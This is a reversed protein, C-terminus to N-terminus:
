EYNNFVQFCFNIKLLHFSLCATTCKSLLINSLSYLCSSAPSFPTTCETKAMNPRPAAPSTLLHYCRSVDDTCLTQLELFLGPGFIASEPTILVSSASFYKLSVFDDWPFLCPPWPCLQLGSCGHVATKQKTQASQQAPHPSLSQWWDPIKRSSWVQLSLKVQVRIHNRCAGWTVWIQLVQHLSVLSTPQLHLGTSGWCKPVLPSLSFSSLSISFFMPSPPPSVCSCGLVWSLDHFEIQTSPM